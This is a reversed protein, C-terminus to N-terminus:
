RRIKSIKRSGDSFTKVEIFVGQQPNEIVRGSMDTYVVSKVSLEPNPLVIGGVVEGTKKDVDYVYKDSVVTKGNDTYLMQLAIKKFSTYFVIKRSDESDGMSIDSGLGDYDLYAYPIEVLDQEIYHYDSTTFAFPVEADDLYFRYSLKEKDLPRGESDHAPVNVSVISQFVYNRYDEITPNALRINEGGTDTMKRLSPAVIHGYPNQSGITETVSEESSLLGKNRDFYFSIWDTTQYVRGWLDFDDTAHAGNFFVAYDNELEGNNYRGVYQHSKFYVSDGEVSGEVWGQVNRTLGRVFVKDGADIVYAEAVVEKGDPENKYTLVYKVSEADEPLKVTATQINFPQYRYTYNTAHAVGLDDVYAAGCNELSRITGDREKVFRIYKDATNVVVETSDENINAAALYLDAEEIGQAPDADQHFVHQGVPIRITDGDITGKVYTNFLYNSCIDKFYVDNNVGVAVSVFKGSWAYHRLGGEMIYTDLLFLSDKASAPVETLVDDVNNEVGLVASPNAMMIGSFAVMAIVAHFNKRRM